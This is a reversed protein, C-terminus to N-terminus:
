GVPVSGHPSPGTLPAPLTHQEFFSWILSSASIRHDANSGPMTFINPPWVHGEREIRYHIIIADSKCGSWEFATLIAPGVLATPGKTCGDRAAWGALWEPIPLLQRAPQGDYPVIEDGTGHIELIPVPRAPQCGGPYPNPPYAGSVPAFAAIRDAMSCALLNTM